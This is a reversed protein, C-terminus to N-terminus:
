KRFDISTYKNVAKRTRQPRVPASIDSEMDSIEGVFPSAPESTTIDDDQEHSGIPSQDSRSTESVVGGIESICESNMDPTSAIDEEVEDIQVQVPLKRAILSATEDLSCDTLNDIPQIDGQEPGQTEMKLYEDREYYKKLDRVHSSRIKFREQTETRQDELKVTVDTTYKLLRFPGIYPFRFKKGVDEHFPRKLWVLSGVDFKYERRSLNAHSATIEQSKQIRLEVDKRVKTIIDRMRQVEHAPSSLSLENDIAIRAPFGYLLEFPTKGTTKQVSTNIAHTIAPLWHDWERNQRIYNAICKTIVGNTRECLGNSRPNLPSTFRQEVGLLRNVEAMLKSRYNSGNDTILTKIAGYRM